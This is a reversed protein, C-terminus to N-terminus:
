SGYSNMGIEITLFFKLFSLRSLLLIRGYGDPYVNGKVSFITSSDVKAASSVLRNVKQTRIGDGFPSVGNGKDFDVFRGLKLEMDDKGRTGMKPYLPFIFSRPGDDDNDNSRRFGELVTPYM